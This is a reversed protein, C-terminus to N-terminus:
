LRIQEVEVRRDPCEERFGCWEGWIERVAGKCWESLPIDGMRCLAASQCGYCHCDRCPRM